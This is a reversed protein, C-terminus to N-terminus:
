IRVLVTAAHKADIIGELCEMGDKKQGHIQDTYVRDDQLSDESLNDETEGLSLRSM